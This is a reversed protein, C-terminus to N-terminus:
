FRVHCDGTMRSGCNPTPNLRPPALPRLTTARASPCRRAMEMSQHTPRAITQVEADGMPRPTRRHASRHFVVRLRYFAGYYNFWGRIRANIAGALGALDTASRRNLHWHSIQKGIAKKATPSMAPSFSVFFGRRGRALRGRFTYGLFDFSTDEAEDRRKTNDVAMLDQGTAAMYSGAPPWCFQGRQLGGASHGRPAARPAGALDRQQTLDPVQVRYCLTTVFRRKWGM